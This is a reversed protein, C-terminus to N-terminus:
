KMEMKRIRSLLTTPKIVLLEAPGVQEYIKWDTPKMTTQINTKDRGHDPPNDAEAVEDKATGVTCGLYVGRRM